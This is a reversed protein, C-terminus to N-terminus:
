NFVFSIYLSIDVFYTEKFTVEFDGLTDESNKVLSRSFAGDLKKM